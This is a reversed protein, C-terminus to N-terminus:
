SENVSPEARMVLACVEGLLRGTLLARVKLRGPPAPRSTSFKSERSNHFVTPLSTDSMKSLSHSRGVWSGASVM